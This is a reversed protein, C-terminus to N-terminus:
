GQLKQKLIKNLTVPCAKGKLMKMAQGVFFGYLKVKGNRYESLKDNNKAFIDEIAKEIVKEDKIQLLDNSKVYIKPTVKIDEWMIDLIEKGTTSNILEQELLIILEILKDESVPSTIISTNTKNIRALFETFVWHILLKKSQVQM